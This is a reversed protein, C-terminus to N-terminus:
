SDPLFSAPGGAQARAVRLAATTKKQRSVRSCPHCVVRGGENPDDHRYWIHGHAKIEASAMKAKAMAQTPDKCDKETCFKESERIKRGKLSVVEGRARKAEDALRTPERQYCAQCLIWGKRM